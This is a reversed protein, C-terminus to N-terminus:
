FRDNYINLGLGMRQDSFPVHATILLKAPNVNEAYNNGGSYNEKLPMIQLNVQLPACDLSGAAGPNYYLQQEWYKTFHMIQQSHAYYGSILLLLLFRTKMNMKKAYLQYQEM